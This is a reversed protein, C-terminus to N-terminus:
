CLVQCLASALHSDLLHTSSPTSFPRASSSGLSPEKEAGVAQPTQRKRERRSFGLGKRGEGTRLVKSQKQNRCQTM